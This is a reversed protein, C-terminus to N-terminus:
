GFQTSLTLWYKRVSSYGANANGSFNAFELGLLYRKCLPHSLSLDWEHGYTVSSSQATFHHYQGELTIQWVLASFAGYFDRLGGNPLVTFQDALGNFVHVSALPTQFAQAQSSFVEYGLDIDLGYAIQAQTKLHYYHTDYDVPNNHQTKQKAYEAWFLFDVESFDIRTHYRAGITDHSNLPIEQDHLLYAYATIDGWPDLHSTINVLHTNNDRIAATAAKNGQWVSNVRDIYSYFIEVNYLSRNIVTVADFTQPTQRFDSDGVFRENDLRIIQRGLVLPSHPLGQYVLYAQQLATGQPDDIEAYQYLSPTSNQGSNFRDNFYASVHNFDLVGFLKYIPATHYFLDTSLTTARGNYLPGQQQPNNTTVDVYEQRGRLKIATHGDLFIEELSNATQMPHPLSTTYTAFSSFPLASFLSHVFFNNLCSRIQVAKM